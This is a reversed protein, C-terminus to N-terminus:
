YVVMQPLMTGAVSCCFVTSFAQKSSTRVQEFYKSNGSFFADEVGPDDKLCSEDYNFFHAAM